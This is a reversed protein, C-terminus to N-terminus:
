LRRRRGFRLGGHRRGRNRGIAICRALALAALLARALQERARFFRHGREIVRGAALERLARDRLAAELAVLEGARQAQDCHRARLQAVVRRGLGRQEPQERELGVGVDARAERGLPAARHEVRAPEPRHVLVAKREVDAVRPALALQDHVHAVREAPRVADLHARAERRTGVHQRVTAGSIMM